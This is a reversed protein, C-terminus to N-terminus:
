RGRAIIELAGDTVRDVEAASRLHNNVIFSFVVPDGAATTLYGSLSRIGSLTGTKAHVNGRLPAATMRNALTGDMGAVPLSTYFLEGNPQQRLDILLEVLLRPSLLDYRSLGSGDAMRLEAAPLQWSRLISDVVGAGAEGSGVGRAERGVARLLTEAIWNQSPKLMAPLIERLPPSSSVFLRSELTRYTPWEDAPLAQGEVAVGAGRLTERLVALFYAAPDRVAVTLTVYPTDAPLAGTVTIGPGSADRTLQVHAPTGPPGTTTRNDIHVYQTPPTLIVVGPEGVTRSPMVQVELGGENFQLAGFEAAYTADLDDWAWGAGLGPGSFASDVGIIGGAVRTVGHARLSDAWARFTTRPDPAFRGSLTPDGTGRVVLPGQLVGGVVPGAAMVTTQFRYDPGLVALAAAATLLKMNSAPVFEKEAHRQYIVEGTRVSKVLVGWHAGAFAPDAFVSDLAPAIPSSRPAPATRAAPTCAGCLALLAVLIYRMCHRPHTSSHREHTRGEGTDQTPHRDYPCGEHTGPIPHRINLTAGEM